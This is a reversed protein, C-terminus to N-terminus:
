IECTHNFPFHYFIDEEEQEDRAWMNNSSSSNYYMKKHAPPCIYVCIYTHFLLFKINESENWHWPWFVGFNLKKQEKCNFKEINPKRSREYMKEEQDKKKAREWEIIEVWEWMIYHTNRACSSNFM